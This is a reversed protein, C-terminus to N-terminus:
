KVEPQKKLGWTRHSFHFLDHAAKQIAPSCIAQRYDCQLARKKWFPPLQDMRRVMGGTEDAIVYVMKKIGANIMRTLCMPCPEASSVLILHDCDRLDNANEGGARKRLWDEYRNLLDMEAHLDSRFYPKYQRNRGTAIIKGTTEDVLCAGIGGSGEKISTLAQKVVLLGYADDKFAPDPQLREVRIEMAQIRRATEPGALAMSAFFLFHVAIALVIWWGPCGNDGARRGITKAPPCIAIM